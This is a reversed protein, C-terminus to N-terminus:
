EGAITMNDILVSGTLISRRMDVDTAVDVIGRFMDKLNGAITVESVPYQLTGNEVWYGAAGRSYDGTTRNIGQGMLETVLLGTGMKALLKELTHVGHSVVLNHVGGANGTTQLGLKCASYSGLVYRKAVGGAVLDSPATAVGENDYPSSANGRKLWPEERINIYDPFVQQELCDLLFTMNRYQSTGSIASVYSSFLGSAIDAAFVVPSQRTSLRRPNLRNIAREAAIKGIGGIADLDDACRASSYWYDREMGAGDEAIVSCSVTHRSTAYGHLFENSNGYINIGEQSSLTAGESNKIRKDYQLAADECRQAIAIAEAVTLPWQHYLDLDQPNRALLAADALGNCPDESTVRAIDCAATVTEAIASDSLDTTSATGKRAGMYVTVGLGQDLNHEVTEVEGLRVTASLGKGVNLSAEASTAGADAALALVRAVRQRYREITDNNIILDQGHSSTTM